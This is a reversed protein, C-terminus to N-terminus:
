ERLQYLPSKHSHPSMTNGVVIFDSQKLLMGVQKPTFQIRRDKLEKLIGVIEESTRPKGDSM